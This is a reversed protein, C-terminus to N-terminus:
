STMVVVGTAAGNKSIVTVKTGITLDALTKGEPRIRTDASVSLSQTTGDALKLSRIM